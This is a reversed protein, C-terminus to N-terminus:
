SALQQQSDANSSVRQVGQGGFYVVSVANKGALEKFEKATALTQVAPACMEKGFEVIGQTTRPGNYNRMEGERFFKLSPFGRIHFRAALATSVTADIKALHVAHGRLTRAAEEYLPALTKSPHPCLPLAPVCLVASVSESSRRARDNIAPQPHEEETAGRTDRVLTWVM